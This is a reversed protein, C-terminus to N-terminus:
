FMASPLPHCRRKGLAVFEGPTGQFVLSGAEMYLVRDVWPLCKELRHEALLVTIGTEENLKRVLGIVQDSAVPDLQSTPEDLLLVDPGTVTAGAIALKQKEGGSLEWTPRQRQSFFDFQILMEEVRRKMEQQSVGANELGFALESEVTTMVLQKEPDQFVM